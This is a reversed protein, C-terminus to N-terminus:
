RFRRNPSDYDNTTPDTRRYCCTGTLHYVTTMTTSLPYWCFSVQFSHFHQSKYDGCKSKNRLNTSRSAHGGVNLDVSLERACTCVSLDTKRCDLNSAFIHPGTLVRNFRTSRGVSLGGSVVGVGLPSSWRGVEKEKPRLCLGGIRLTDDVRDCMHLRVLEDERCGMKTRM